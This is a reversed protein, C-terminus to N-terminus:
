TLADPGIQASKKLTEEFLREGWDIAAKDHAILDMKDDYEGSLTFLGLSFGNETLSLAVKLDERLFVRLKGAEFYRTVLSLDALASIKKLVGSSVILEVTSGQDLMQGFLPVFDPHFIPSIGRLKQSVRAIDMFMQHVTSLETVETQILVSDKLAGITLLLGTPIGTVDHRLWFDKFKEIVEIASFYVRDIESEMIGLSSLKYAGQSRTVLDLDCLQQLVHLITSDRAGVYGRLDALKQEKESLSLLIKRKLESRLPPEHDLAVM